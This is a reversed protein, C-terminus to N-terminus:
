ARRRLGIEPHSREEEGGALIHPEEVPLGGDPLHRQRDDVVAVALPLTDDLAIGGRHPLGQADGVSRRQQQAIGGTLFDVSLLGVVTVQEDVRAHLGVRRPRAKGLGSLRPLWPPPRRSRYILYTLVVNCPLVVAASVAGVSRCQLPRTLPRVADVHPHLVGGVEDEVFAVGSVM